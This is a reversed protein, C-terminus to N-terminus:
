KGKYELYELSNHVNQFYESSYFVVSKISSYIMWKGMNIILFFFFFFFCVLRYRVVIFCGANIGPATFFNWGLASFSSLKTQGHKQNQEKLAEKKKPSPFWNDQKQTHAWKMCNKHSHSQDYKRDSFLTLIYLFHVWCM